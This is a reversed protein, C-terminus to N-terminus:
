TILLSKESLGVKVSTAQVEDRFTEMPIEEKEKAEEGCASFIVLSCFLLAKNM